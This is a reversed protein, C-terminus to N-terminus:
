GGRNVWLRLQSEFAADTVRISIRTGSSGTPYDAGFPQRYPPNLVTLAFAASGTQDVAQAAETSATKATQLARRLATVHVVGRGSKRMPVRVQLPTKVGGDDHKIQNGTDDRLSVFTGAESREIGFQVGHHPEELEVRDPVGSFLAILVGASLRELRMTTLRSGAAFARVEMHPWGSVMGSRLLFGTIVGAPQATEAEASRADMYNTIKKRQLDRVLNEAVDVSRQVDAAHAQTHALERTGIKGVALVGDVLRDTWSRDLYFFRISEDPLLREDPVLYTFPVGVLLRLHALFSELYPPLDALSDTGAVQAANQLREALAEHELIKM